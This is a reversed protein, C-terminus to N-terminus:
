WLGLGRLGGAYASARLLRSFRHRPQLFFGIVKDRFTISHGLASKRLFSYTIFMHFKAESNEAIPLFIVVFNIPYKKQGV